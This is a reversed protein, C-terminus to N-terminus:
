PPITLDYSPRLNTATRRSLFPIISNIKAGFSDLDSSMLFIVKGDKPVDHNDTKTATISPKIIRLFAFCKSRSMSIYNTERRGLQYDSLSSVLHVEQTKKM